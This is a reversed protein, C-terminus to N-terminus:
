RGQETEAKRAMIAMAVLQRHIDASNALPEDFFIRLVRDGAALDFGDADIGTMIWAVDSAAAKGYHRALRAVADAHDSNMHEVAGAEAEAIADLDPAFTLLDAATLAYARGFGGNLSAAQPELRFFSFDAFGSYLKSKPNRSLFRREIRAHRGDDKAVKEARCSLTIRAHALPDGKGPEGLLLSCRPDAELCWTHRSLASVLILPAGDHDTAVAVRSVFPAGSELELVGLAGHRATRLLTKALRIAEADTALLVDKKKEVM